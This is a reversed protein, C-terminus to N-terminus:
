FINEKVRSSQLFHCCTRSGSGSGRPCHPQRWCSRRGCNQLCVICMGIITKLHVQRVVRRLWLSPRRLLLLVQGSLLLVKIVLCLPARCLFNLRVQFRHSLHWLSPRRLLLLVQGSLLLVKIVLCLPARCLFNLRVQFRHGLHRPCDSDSDSDSTVSGPSPLILPGTWLPLILVQGSLLLFSWLRWPPCGGSYWLREAFALPSARVTVGCRDLPVFLCVSAQHWICLGGSPAPLDEPEVGLPTFLGAFFHVLRDLFSHSYSYPRSSGAWTRGTCLSAFLCCTLFVFSITQLSRSDLGPIPLAEPQARLPLIVQGFLLFMNWSWGFPLGLFRRWSNSGFSQGKSRQNASNTGNRSFVSSIARAQWKGRCLMAMAMGLIPVSISGFFSLM